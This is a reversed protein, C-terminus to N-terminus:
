EKRETAAKSPLSVRNKEILEKPSDPSFNKEKEHLLEIREEDRLTSLLRTLEHRVDERGSRIALKYWRIAKITNRKFVTGNSFFRALAVMAQPDGQEAASGFHSAAATYDGKEYHILGLGYYAERINKEVGINFWAIAKEMNNLKEMDYYLMAIRVAAEDNGANYAKTYFKLASNYDPFKGSQYLKGAILYGEDDGDQAANLSLRIGEEIIQNPLTEKKELVARIYNLRSIKDGSYASERCYFLANHWDEKEAYKYCLDMYSKYDYAVSYNPKLVFCGATVIFSLALFHISRM